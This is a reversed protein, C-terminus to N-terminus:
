VSLSALLIAFFTLTFSAFFLLWGLRWLAGWRGLRYAGRLQRYLHLPPVVVAATWCIWAPVVTAALVALLIALLSMFTLSYTAFVAHDYLGIDRRLPFLLWIFPLSIPILAWSFKYGNAKLKYLLLEPNDRAHRWKSDLWGAANPAPAPKVDVIAPMGASLLTEARGLDAVARRATAARGELRALRSPNAGPGAREQAVRRDLTALETRARAKEQALKTRAQMMGSMVGPKMFNSGNVQWGPLSGLVAFMLFVSFLFIALPSVFRAREGAIYRRTLEGPRFVLLPLTRFTRGDFHLVGHLLDHGIAGMTRHIHGSQGCHQCFAGARRTGCNRCLGGAGAGDHEGAAPEVARALLAGSAIDGAATIDGTM